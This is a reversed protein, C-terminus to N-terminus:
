GHYGYGHKQEQCAETPLTLTVKNCNPEGLVTETQDVTEIGDEFKVM